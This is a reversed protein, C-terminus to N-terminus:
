GWSEYETLHQGGQAGGDVLRLAHKLDGRNERVRALPEGKEVQVLNGGRGFPRM